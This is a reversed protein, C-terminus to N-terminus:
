KQSTKPVLVGTAGSGEDVDWPGAPLRDLVQGARLRVQRRGRGAEAAAPLLGHQHHDEPSREEREDKGRAM